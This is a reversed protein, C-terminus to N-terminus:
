RQTERDGQRDSLIDRIERLEARIDAFERDQENTSTEMFWTAVYATFVSFLAVGTTMLLGGLLRGETTVPFRDGYGVTAVTVIAWWLADGATNINGGAAPEFQLVAISASVVALMTTLILTLLASQARKQLVFEGLHRTSRVGRLVRLIRAARAARGARLFPVAPISSVLDVWGWTLLYRGRNSATVLSHMFDALFVFCVATDVYSLIHRTETNLSVLVEVALSGLVLVCLALMFLQYPGARSDDAM